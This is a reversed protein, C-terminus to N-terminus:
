LPTALLSPVSYTDVVVCMRRLRLGGQDLIAECLYRGVSFLRTQGELNTQFLAYNARVGVGGDPQARARVNTILHRDFHLNYENAHRLAVVRDRIMPKGTCLMLSVPLGRDHNERPVVQYVADDTFLEVWDELRDDDIREAHEDMLERALDHLDCPATM